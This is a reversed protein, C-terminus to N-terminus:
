RRSGGYMLWVPGTQEAVAPNHFTPRREGVAAKLAFSLFLGSPLSCFPVVCPVILAAVPANPQSKLVHVREQRRKNIVNYMEQYAIGM